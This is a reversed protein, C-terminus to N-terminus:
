SETHTYPNFPSQREYEQCLKVYQVGMGRKTLGEKEQLLNVMKFGVHLVSQDPLFTDVCGTGVEEENKVRYELKVDWEFGRKKEGECRNATM